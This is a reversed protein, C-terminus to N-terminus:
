SLRVSVYESENGSAEEVTEVSEDFSVEPEMDSSTRTPKRPTFEIVSTNSMTSQNILPTKIQSELV